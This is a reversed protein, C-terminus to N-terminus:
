NDNSIQGDVKENMTWKNTLIRKWMDFQEDTLMSDSQLYDIISFFLHQSSNKMKEALTSQVSSSDEKDWDEEENQEQSLVKIQPPNDAWTRMVVLVNTLFM